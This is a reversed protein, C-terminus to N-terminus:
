KFYSPYGGSKGDGSNGHWKRMQERERKAALKSADAGLSILLDETQYNVAEMLAAGEKMNVDAGFEVLLNIFGLLGSRSAAQLASGERYDVDLSLGGLELLIRVTELRRSIIGALLADWYEHTNFMNKRNGALLVTVISAFGDGVASRLLAGQRINPAIGRELFVSVLETMNTYVARLVPWYGDCSMNAGLDVLLVSMNYNKNYIARPLPPYSQANVNAGNEVLLRVMETHSNEVAEIVSQDDKYHVDAGGQHILINAMNILGLRSAAILAVSSGNVAVQRRSAVKFANQLVVAIEEEFMPAAEVLSM